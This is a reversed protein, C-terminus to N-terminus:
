KTDKTTKLIYFLLFISFSLGIGSYLAITAMQNKLILGGFVFVIFRAVLLVTEYIFFERQKELVLLISSIPSNLFVLFLWPLLIQTYTGAQTWNEGFVFGFIAPAFLGLLLFPVFGITFLKKYTSKVLPFLYTGSNKLDAAKKYFIQGMALTIINMPSGIIRFSWSYFGTAEFSFLKGLLLNPLNNSLKNALTSPLSYLPFKKYEHAVRYYHSYTKKPINKQIKFEGSKFWFILATIGLGFMRGFSLATHGLFSFTLQFLITVTKQTIKGKAMLPFEKLRNFWVDFIRYLNYSLMLLIILLLSFRSKVNTLNFLELIKSHFIIFILSFLITSLVSILVVINVLIKADTKRKPLIVALDYKGMSISSLVGAFTFYFAFIGFEEPTYLRTIIPSVIVPIIESIATGSSLVLFDRRFGSNKLIKKKFFNIARTIM